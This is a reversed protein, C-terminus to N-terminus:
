LPPVIEITQERAVVGFHRRDTTLVRGGNREACAIVCADAFGLRLDEYRALLADIRSLDHEGCDLVYFGAMMDSLLRRLTSSGLWGEVMYGAEGLLAVPLVLPGTEQELSRVVTQHHRDGRNLAALLGSTDLTILPTGM